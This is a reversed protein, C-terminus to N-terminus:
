ANEAEIEPVGMLRGWAWATNRQITPIGTGQAWWENNTLLVVQPHQVIGELWVFPLLQDYCISAWTQVGDIKKAPTWWAAEYGVNQSRVYGTGRSWPHWMSVPVPFTSNFLIHPKGSHRLAVISDTMLGPKRPVSFGVLWTQGPPISQQIQWENGLWATELTEPLLLVKAGKSKALTQRIIDVRRQLTYALSVKGPGVDLHVGTWGPPAKAPQWAKAVPQVLVALNCLGAIVAISTWLSYEWWLVVLLVLGIVLAGPNGAGPFLVGLSALPSLWDFFSLPPILADFLLVLLAKWSRNAFTWGMSLLTASGLWLFAGEWVPAHQGFFVSVGRLLGISGAAYYSLAVAFRMWRRDQRLVFLIMLPSLAPGLWHVPAM